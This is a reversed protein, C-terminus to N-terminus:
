TCIRCLIEMCQYRSHTQTLISITDLIIKHKCFYDDQASKYLQILKARGEITTAEPKVDNIWDLWLDKYVFYLNPKSNDKSVQLMGETLPFVAHM